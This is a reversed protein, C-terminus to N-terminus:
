DIRHYPYSGPFSWSSNTIPRTPSILYAEVLYSVLYGVQTDTHIYAQGGTCPEKITQSQPRIQTHTHTHTHTHAYKHTHTHTYIHPHTHTHIHTSGEETMLRISLVIVYEYEGIGCGGVEVSWERV